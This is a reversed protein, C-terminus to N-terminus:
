ALPPARSRYSRAIRVAPEAASDAPLLQWVREAPERPSVEAPVSGATTIQLCLECGQDLGSAFKLPQHQHALFASVSILLAAAAISVTWRTFRTGRWRQLLSGGM